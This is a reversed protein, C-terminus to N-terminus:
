MAPKLVLVIQVVIGEVEHPLGTPLQSWHYYNRLYHLITQAFPIVDYSIRARPNVFVYFDQEAKACPPM